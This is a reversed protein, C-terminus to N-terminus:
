ISLSSNNGTSWLKEGERGRVPCSCRIGKCDPCLGKWWVARGLPESEASSAGPGGVQGFSGSWTM